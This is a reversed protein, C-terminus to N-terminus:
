LEEGERAHPNYLCASKECAKKVREWAVDNVDDYFGRGKMVKRHGTSSNDEPKGM